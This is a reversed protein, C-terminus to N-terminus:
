LFRWETGQKTDKIEIGLKLLADRIKDSFAFDKRQRAENRLQLVLEILAPLRDDTRGAKEI